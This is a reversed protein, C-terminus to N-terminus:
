RVGGYLEALARIETDDILAMKEAMETPQPPSELGDRYLVMQQALYRPQQGALRPMDRDQYRGLDEHCEACHEEHIALGRQALVRDTAVVATGWPKRAFYRAIKGLEYLKYGKAIRGMITGPRRGERFEKLVRTLFEPNQGAISPISHGYSIGDPGHCGNCTEALMGASPGAANAFSPSVLGGVSWAVLLLGRWFSFSPTCGFHQPAVHMEAM